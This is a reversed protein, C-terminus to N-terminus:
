DNGKYATEIHKKSFKKQFKTVYFWMKEFVEAESKQYLQAYEKSMIEVMYKKPTLRCLNKMRQDFSLKKHFKMRNLDILYFSYTANSEKKILTNGQSHDLFEIGNKHLAFSFAAFQKLITNFDPFNPTTNLDTFSLDPKIYECVYYSKGLGFALKEEFFAVPFPTGIKKDILTMANYFSRFAKSKRIYRYVFAQFFNPKKFSKVAFPQSNCTIIKIENREGKVLYEGQTDFNEIKQLLEAGISFYKPHNSYQM